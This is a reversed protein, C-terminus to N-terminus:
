QMNGKQMFDVMKMKQIIARRDVTANGSDLIQQWYDLATSYDRTKLAEAALLSLVSVEKRDQTLVEEVLQQVQPTVQQNEQLYLSM